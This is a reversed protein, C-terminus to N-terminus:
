SSADWVAAQELLSSPEPSPQAAKASPLPSAKAGARGQGARPRGGAGAAGPEAAPSQSGRSGAPRWLEFGERWTNWAAQLVFNWRLLIRTWSCITNPVAPNQRQKYLKIQFLAAPLSVISFLINQQKQEGALWAKQKGRKCTISVSEFSERVGIASPVPILYTIAM